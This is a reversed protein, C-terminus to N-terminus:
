PFLSYFLFFSSVSRYLVQQYHFLCGYLTASTFSTKVASILAAEYDCVVYRVGEKLEPIINILFNFIAVYMAKTMRDTFAYVM